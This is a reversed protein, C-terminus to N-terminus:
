IEEYVIMGKIEISRILGKGRLGSLIVNVNNETKGTAKVIEDINHKKDCLQLIKAEEKGIQPKPCSRKQLIILIDLKKDISSLTKSLEEIQEKSM